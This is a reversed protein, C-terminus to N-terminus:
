RHRRAIQLQAGTSAAAFERHISAPLAVILVLPHTVPQLQVQPSPAVPVQKVGLVLIGEFTQAPQTAAGTPITTIDVVDGPKLDGSLSMAHTAPIGVVVSSSDFQRAEVPKLMQGRNVVEGKAVPGLAFSGDVEKEDTLMSPTVQGPPRKSTQFDGSTFRHYAPIDKAAILVNAMSTPRQSIIFAIGFVILYLGLFVIHACDVPPATSAVINGDRNAAPPTTVAQFSEPILMRGHGAENLPPAAVSGASPKQTNKFFSKLTTVVRTLVSSSEDKKAPLESLYTTVKLEEGRYILHTLDKWILLEQDYNPPAKVGLNELLKWRYLDFATKILEAYLRAGHLANRYCLWSLPVGLACVLFLYWHSTFITLATCALVSFSFSLASMMLMFTMATKAGLLQDLFEKPLVAHLRPWMVVADIEYRKWPYIEAARIINGLRTPKVLAEVTPLFLLREREYAGLQQADKLAQRRQKDTGSALVEQLGQQQRALTDTRENLYHFRRRYYRLRPERLFSLPFTQWYGEYLRIIATQFNSLLFAFFAVFALAGALLVMQAIATQTQWWSIASDPGKVIAFILLGAAWFGLSPFFVSLLWHRDFYGGLEKLFTTFM